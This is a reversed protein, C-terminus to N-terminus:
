PQSDYSIGIATEEPVVREIDQLDPSGSRWQLAPQIHVPAPTM